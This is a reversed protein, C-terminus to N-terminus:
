SLENSQGAAIQYLANLNELTDEEVRVLIVPPRTSGRRPLPANPPIGPNLAEHPDEPIAEHAEPDAVIESIPPPRPVAAPKGAEVKSKSEVECLSGM